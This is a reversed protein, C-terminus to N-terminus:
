EYVHFRFDNIRIGEPSDQNFPDELLMQVNCFSILIFGKFGTMVFVYWLAVDFGIDGLLSAPYFIVFMYIAFLITARIGWPTHHRKTALLFDISENIRYQFSLIKESFRGKFNEKNAQMFIFVDDSAKQVLSAESTEASLYQILKDSVNILHNKFELKKEGELKSIEFYYYSSKLAASFASLYQIARERRRFAERLTFTLPIAIFVGLFIFDVYFNIQFRLSIFSALLSLVLILLTHINFIFLYKKM